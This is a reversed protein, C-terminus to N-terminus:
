SMVVELYKKFRFTFFECLTNESKWKSMLDIAADVSISIQEKKECHSNGYIVMSSILILVLSILRYSFSLM